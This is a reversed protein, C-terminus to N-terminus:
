PRRGTGETRPDATSSTTAWWRSVGRPRWRSGTTMARCSGPLSTRCGPITSTPSSSGTAACCCVFPDPDLLVAELKELQVGLMGLSVLAMGRLLGDRQELFPLLMDALDKNGSRGVARIARGVYSRGDSGDLLRRLQDIGEQNGERALSEPRWSAAARTTTRSPRCCTRRPLMGSPGSGVADAGVSLTVRYEGERVGQGDLTVTFAEKQGPLMQDLRAPEVTAQIGGEAEAVLQLQRTDEPLQQARLGPGLGGKEM